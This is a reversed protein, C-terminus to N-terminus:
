RARTTAEGTRSARAEQAEIVEERLSEWRHVFTALVCLHLFSMAIAYLWVAISPTVDLTGSGPGKLILLLVAILYTFVLLTHQPGRARAARMGLQVAARLGVEERVAVIPAYVLFYMGLVLGAILGLVGLIAALVAPLVLVIALFLAEVAVVTQATRWGRHFAAVWAERGRVNGGLSEISGSVWYTLLAARVLLIAAALALTAAVPLVRVDAQFLSADLLSHMPPLSEIQALSAANAVHIV